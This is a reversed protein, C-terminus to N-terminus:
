RDRVAAIDALSDADFGLAPDGLTDVRTLLVDFVADRENQWYMVSDPDHDHNGHDRDRHDRVMPLGNDVLGLLHGVEHTLVALEANRCLESALATILQECGASLSQKYMAIHRHDWAEGLVPGGDESDAHGDLWLVHIRDVGPPLDLDMHVDALAFLEEDSWRHSRGVPELEDDFVVEIGDPKDLLAAFGRFVDTMVGRQPGFGRTVDVEVILKRYVDGRIHAEWPPIDDPGGGGGAFADAGVRVRGSGAGSGTVDPYRGGTERASGDSGGSADPAAGPDLEDESGCACWLPALACVIRAAQGIGRSRSGRM